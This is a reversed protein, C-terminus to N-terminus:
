TLVIMSAIVINIAPVNIFLAILNSEFVEKQNSQFKVFDRM